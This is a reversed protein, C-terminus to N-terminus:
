KNSKPLRAEGMAYICYYYPPKQWHQKTVTWGTKEMLDILNEHTFRFMHDDHIESQNSEIVEIANDLKVPYNSEPFIRGKVAQFLGNWGGRKWKMYLRAFLPRKTQPMSIEAQAIPQPTTEQM